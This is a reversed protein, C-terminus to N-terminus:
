RFDLSTSLRRGFLCKNINLTMGANQIAKLVETLDEIHKTWTNSHILVDDFYGATFANLGALVKGIIRNFTSCAGSLGFPLVLWEYHGRPTVFGTYKISEEDLNINWYAKTIDLKTLYKAQGIKDILDDIRGIPYAQCQCQRNLKSYDIVLRHGGDPKNLLMCPSAYYSTSQRILGLDLLKQIEAELINQKDPHMRFANCKVPQIDPKVLIKHTGLHTRGPLDNFINKFKSLLIDLDTKQIETLDTSCDHNDDTRLDEGFSTDRTSFWFPSRRQETPLDTLSKIKAATGIIETLTKKNWDNQIILNRAIYNTDFRNDRKIYARLLNIHCLLTKKSRDPTAPVQPTTM